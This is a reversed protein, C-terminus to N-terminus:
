RPGGGGPWGWPSGSQSQQKQAPTMRGLSMMMEMLSPPARPPTKPADPDQSPDATQDAPQNRRQPLPQEWWEPPRQQSSRDFPGMMGVGMRAMQQLMRPDYPM